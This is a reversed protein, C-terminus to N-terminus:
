GWDTNKLRGVVEVKWFCIRYNIKETTVIATDNYKM